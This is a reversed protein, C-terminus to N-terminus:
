TSPHCFEDIRVSPSSYDSPFSKTINGLSERLEQRVGHKM